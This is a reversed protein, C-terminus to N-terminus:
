RGPRGFDRLSQAVERTRLVRGDLCRAVGQRLLPRLRELEAPDQLNMGDLDALGYGLVDLLKKEFLRLVPEQAPARRLGSLAEAYHVFLEPQPDHRATLSMVLESLYWASM